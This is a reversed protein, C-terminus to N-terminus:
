RSLRWNGLGILQYSNGDHIGIDYSLYISLVSPSWNTIKRRKDPFMDLFSSLSLCERVEHENQCSVVSLQCSVVAYLALLMLNTHDHVLLM